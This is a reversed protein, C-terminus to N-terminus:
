TDRAPFIPMRVPRIEPRTTRSTSGLFPPSAVSAASAAAAAAIPDASRSSGFNGLVTPDVGLEIMQDVTRAKCVDRYRIASARVATDICRRAFQQSTVADPLFNPRTGATTALGVTAGGSGGAAREAVDTDEAVAAWRTLASRRGMPSGLDVYPVVADQRQLLSSRATIGVARNSLESAIPVQDPTGLQMAGVYAQQPQQQQQQHHPPPQRTAAGRRSMHSPDAERIRRRLERETRVHQEEVDDDRGPTNSLSFRKANSM